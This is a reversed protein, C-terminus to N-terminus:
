PRTCMARICTLLELALVARLSHIQDRACRSSSGTSPLHARCVRILCPEASMAESLFSLLDSVQIQTINVSIGAVVAASLGGTANRAHHGVAPKTHNSMPVQAHM